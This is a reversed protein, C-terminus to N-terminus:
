AQKSGQSLHYWFCYWSPTLPFAFFFSSFFLATDHQAMSISVCWYHGLWELLILGVINLKYSLRRLRCCEAMMLAGSAREGGSQIFLQQAEKQTTDCALLM